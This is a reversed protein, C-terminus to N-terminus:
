IRFLSFWKILCIVSWRLWFLCDNITFSFSFSSVFLSNLTLYLFLFFLFPWIWENMSKVMSYTEIWMWCENTNAQKNQSWRFDKQYSDATQHWSKNLSFSAKEKNQKINFHIQGWTTTLSLHSVYNPKVVFLLSHINETEWESNEIRYECIFVSLFISSLLFPFFHIYYKITKARM